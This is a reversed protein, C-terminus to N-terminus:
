SRQYLDQDKIIAAIKIIVLNKRLSVDLNSETHKLKIQVRKEFLKSLTTQKVLKPTFIRYFRIVKTDLHKKSTEFFKNSRYILHWVM